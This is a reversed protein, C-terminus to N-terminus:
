SAANIRPSNQPAKGPEGVDSEIVHLVWNARQTSRCSLLLSNSLFPTLLPYDLSLWGLGSHVLLAPSGQERGEGPM